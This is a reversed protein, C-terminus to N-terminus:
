QNVQIDTFWWGDDTSSPTTLRFRLGVNQNAYSALNHRRLLWTGAPSAVSGGSSGITPTCYTGAVDCTAATGLNTQQWSFGGDVSVEVRAFQNTVLDYQTWYELVAAPAHFM